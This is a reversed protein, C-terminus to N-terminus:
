KGTAFRDLLGGFAPEIPTAIPASPTDNLANGATTDASKTTRLSRSSVKTSPLAHFVMESKSPLNTSALRITQDKLIAQNPVRPKSAAAKMRSGASEMGVMPANDIVTSATPKSAAPAISAITLPNRAFESRSVRPVLAAPALVAPALAVTKGAATRKELIGENSQYFAGDISGPTPQSPVPVISEGAPLSEGPISPQAPELKPRTLSPRGSDKPRALESKASRANSESAQKQDSNSASPEDKDASDEYYDSQADGADSNPTEYSAGINECFQCDPEVGMAECARLGISDDIIGPDLWQGTPDVQMTGMDFDLNRRLVEYQLWTRLYSNQSFNLRDIADTVNQATQPNVRADGIKPRELELRASEVFEINIQVSARDLEFQVRNQSINRILNRLNFKIADEFQYFSRKAQQYQILATRYQNREALRVIPADFRLGAQLQGTETRIRFPNDGFNGVSGEFVLDVGAELQDAVFEINRYQDVLSARANMWDRRLCRAIRIAQEDSISSNIIQISNSRALAQLLSLDLVINNLEALQAPIAKEFGDYLYNYLAKVGLKERAEAFNDIRQETAQIQSKLRSLRAAISPTRDQKLANEVTTKDSLALSLPTADPITDPAFLDSSINSIIKGSTVDDTLSKLYELRSERNGALRQIDGEVQVIDKTQVLDVLELAAALSPRLGELQDALDEPWEFNEEAYGSISEDLVSLGKGALNRLDGASNLRRNVEDSILEFQNLLEDEIVVPLEPPLGLQLKFNDLSTQYVVKAALLSRQQEYFTSEVRKFDVAELRGANYFESFQRLVTELQRINFELNRIQQQTELLGFFGGPVQNANGPAALFNGGLQVGAGPNRGTAVQLYFGRKFRELQRVNALLTRESQTLSELIRERGAGQLLPQIISFDLLSNATQTNNGAFNFLITNALGVALNTGTIGLRRLSNGQGNSGLSNTFNSQSGGPALRGQTTFISNFGAFLQSDFGFREVSVNLASQYLTEQQAQLDPSHLLALQYARDLSLVVEGKENMPLYSMWLPNEVADTDGNAHWHPYGPKGDVNHMLQHSAADDPPIPPHDQSFPDHMRSKADIEISGDVNSWRPDLTKESILRKVEADAQRRYYGRHCGAITVSSVVIAMLLTIQLTKQFQSPRVSIELASGLLGPPRLLQPVFRNPACHLPFESSGGLFFRM